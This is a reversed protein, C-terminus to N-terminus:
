QVVLTLSVSHTLSGSTGTVTLTYTGAPTGPNPPPGSNGGGGGCAALTAVGLLIAALAARRLRLKVSSGGTRALRLGLPDAAALSALIMMGLATLVWPWASRNGSKPAAPGLPVILSPATTSVSVSVTQAISGSLTVSAPSVICAAESPAGACTFSVSQNFGGGPAGSLSYSASQGPSVSASSSSGSALGLSFDPAVGTGNLSVTQPSGSANDAFNLTASETGAASPTLTVGVSCTANPAVTQGSCGDSAVAFDTANSGSITVAGAAFTLNANGSNTVTVTQAASTTGVTQSSFTLASASLAVAASPSVEFVTGVSFAGGAETTGYLNGSADMTLGAAPSEGDGGTDMFSYLVKETYSGSSNVLEFVTGFGATGGVLTTGYLNGSADMTVGAEPEAGDGGADTFSYLVKETYSGSSNVLEFVTGASSTGGGATTGYLNGSADMVLGAFPNAGDPQGAFSYLVTEGQARAATAAAMAMLLVTCGLSSIRLARSAAVRSQERWSRM